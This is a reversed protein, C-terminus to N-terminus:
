NLASIQELRFTYAGINQLQASYDKGSVRIRPITLRTSELDYTASYPLSGASIAESALLKFTNDVQLQLQVRYHLNQLQVDPLTVIQTASDYSASNDVTLAPAPQVTFTFQTGIGCVTKPTPTTACSGGTAILYNGAKLGYLTMSASDASTGSMQEGQLFYHNTYSTSSASPNTLWLKSSTNLEGHSVNDLVSKGSLTQPDGALPDVRNDLTYSPGANVYGIWGEHGNLVGVRRFTENVDLKDKAGEVNIADENPGRTPNWGHQGFALEPSLKATGATWLAFAPNDIAAAGVNALNGQGTMSLQVDFNKGESIDKATGVTLTLFQASHTWGQNLAGYDAFAKFPTISTITIATGSYVGLNTAEKIGAYGTVPTSLIPFTGLALFIAQPLKIIPFPINM